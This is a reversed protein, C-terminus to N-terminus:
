TPAPPDALPEKVITFEPIPYVGDLPVENVKLSTGNIENLPFPFFAVASMVIPWAPPTFPTATAAVILVPPNPYWTPSTNVTDDIPLSERPLFRWNDSELITPTFWNISSLTWPSKSIFADLGNCYTLEVVPIVVISLTLPDFEITLSKSWADKDSSPRWILTLWLFWPICEVVM